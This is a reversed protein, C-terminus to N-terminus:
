AVEATEIIEYIAKREAAEVRQTRELAAEDIHQVICQVALERLIKPPIADVDVSEGKFGKARTDTKKTPRTPLNFEEIQQLTVAVKEFHIEADPAFERLRREINVAINQGSPDYDGFHYLYCPKGQDRIAEAASYLYTISAYGRSVMLPVDWPYTVDALVGALADKELWLEVYVPQNRWLARRYLEATDELANALSAHTRPKRVWRTNDAIWEFPLDGKRRMQMLLRCTTAKYETQTKRVLGCAVLRYFVQRCTCPHDEEAIKYIARRISEIEERTRRNGRKTPRTM